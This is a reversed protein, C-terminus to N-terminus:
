ALGHHQRGSKGCQGWDVQAQQRPLTEVILLDEEVWKIDMELQGNVCRSAVAEFYRSLLRRVNHDDEIVLVTLVKLRL